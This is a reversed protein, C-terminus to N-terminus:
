AIRSDDTFNVFREKNHEKIGHKLLVELSKSIERPIDEFRETHVVIGPLCKIWATYGNEEQIYIIKYQEKKM